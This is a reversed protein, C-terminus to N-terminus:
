GSTMGARDRHDFGTDKFPEAMPTGGLKQTVGDIIETLSQGIKPPAAQVIMEKAVSIVAGLALGKLKELEPGFYSLWAPKSPKAHAKKHRGPGQGHGHGNTAIGHSREPPPPPVGTPPGPKQQGRVLTGGLYGLVISGGLMVWPHRQVHAPVDFVGKIADVGSQVTEKVGAITEEVTEKVTQVTEQVTGTVNEVTDAVNSTAAQVKSSVKDELTELKETLSARTDEMQERILDENDM